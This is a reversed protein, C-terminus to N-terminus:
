LSFYINFAKQVQELERSTSCFINRVLLHGQAPIHCLSSMCDATSCHPDSPPNGSAMLVTLVLFGCIVSHFETYTDTGLPINNVEKKLSSRFSPGM